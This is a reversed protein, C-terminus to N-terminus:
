YSPRHDDLRRRVATVDVGCSELIEEGYREGTIAMLLHELTLYEHRRSQVDAVAAALAAELHKGLM